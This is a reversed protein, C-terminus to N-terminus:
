QNGRINPFQRSVQVVMTSVPFLLLQKSFSESSGFASNPSLDPSPPTIVSGLARGGEDAGEDPLQSRNIVALNQWRPKVAGVMEIAASVGRTRNRAGSAPLKDPSIETSLGRRGTKGGAAGRGGSRQWGLPISESLHAYSSTKKPV